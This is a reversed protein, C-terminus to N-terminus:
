DWIWGATGCVPCYLTDENEEGLLEDATGQYGCGHECTFSPLREPPVPNGKEDTWNEKGIPKANPGASM